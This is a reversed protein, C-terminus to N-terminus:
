YGYDDGLQQLYMAYLFMARQTRFKMISDSAAVWDAIIHMEYWGSDDETWKGVMLEANHSDTIMWKNGKVAYKIDEYLGVVTKFDSEDEMEDSNQVDQPIVDLATWKKGGAMWTLMLKNAQDASCGEPYSFGKIVTAYDGDQGYRTLLCEDNPCIWVDHHSGNRETTHGLFVCEECDHTHFVKLSETGRAMKTIM